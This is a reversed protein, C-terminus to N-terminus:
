LMAFISAHCDPRATFEVNGADPNWVPAAPAVAAKGVM